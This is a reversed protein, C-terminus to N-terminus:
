DFSAGITVCYGVKAKPRQNTKWSRIEASNVSVDSPCGLDKPLSEPVPPIQSRSNPYFFPAPRPLPPPPSPINSQFLPSIPTTPQRRSPLRELSLKTRLSGLMSKAHRPGLPTVRPKRSIDPSSPSTHPHQGSPSGNQSQSLWKLATSVGRSPSKRRTPSEPGNRHASVPPQEYGLVITQTDFASSILHGFEEISLYHERESQNPPGRRSPRSSM